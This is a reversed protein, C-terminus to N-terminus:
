CVRHCQAPPVVAISAAPPLRRCAVTALSPALSAILGEGTSPTPYVAHSLPACSMAIAEPPSARHMSSCLTFQSQHRLPLHRCRCQLKGALLGLARHSLTSRHLELVTVLVQPAPPPHHAAVVLVYLFHHRPSSVRASSFRRAPSDSADVQTRVWPDTLRRTTSQTLLV